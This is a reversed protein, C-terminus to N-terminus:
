ALTLGLQADSEVVHAVTNDHEAGVRAKNRPIAIELRDHVQWVLQNRLARGIDVIDTDEDLPAFEPGVVDFGFQAPAKLVGVLFQTEFAGARVATDDFHAAVRHRPAPTPPNRPRYGCGCA